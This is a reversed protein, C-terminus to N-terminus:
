GGPLFRLKGISARLALLPNCYAEGLLTESALLGVLIVVIDIFLFFILICRSLVLFPVFELM